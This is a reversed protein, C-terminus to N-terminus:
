EKRGNPVLGCASLAKRLLAKVEAEWLFSIHSGQYWTMHPREWHDWLDRAHDPSALRDALGAYLFRRERPVLPTLALPSVVRLLREINEFSLGIRAAARLVFPPAHAQMLRLFDSAPIGAIVCDLNEELSALLAATYGGLSVGYLAVAPAGQAHLWSILRRIDWVAQAQAHVTDVFDGTFFGDGGRRGVRRPGHLPIVPIAVNLGLDQHLWRAPFGTFDVAAHGMRYGPVCVLWPRPRGPHVVLRAHATRNATYGLWRERGPEGPQPEYESEYRLHQYDGWLSRFNELRIRELSPPCVHYGAPDDLWGRAEYLELAESIEKGVRVGDRRSLFPASVLETAFFLEDLAVKSLLRLDWRPAPIGARGAGNRLGVWRLGLLLALASSRLTLEMGYTLRDLMRDGGLRLAV